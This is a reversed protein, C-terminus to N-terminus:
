RSAAAPGGADGPRGSMRDAIHLANQLEAESSGLVLSSEGQILESLATNFDGAAACTRIAEFNRAANGMNTWFQPANDMQAGSTKQMEDVLVRTAKHLADFARAANIFQTKLGAAAKIVAPHKPHSAAYKQVRACYEIGASTGHVLDTLQIPLQLEQAIKQDEYRLGEAREQALLEELSGVGEHRPHAPASAPAPQPSAAPQAAQLSAHPPTNRFARGNWEAARRPDVAKPKEDVAKGHADYRSGTSAIDRERQHQRRKKAEAADKEMKGPVFTPYSPGGGTDAM